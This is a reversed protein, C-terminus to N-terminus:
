VATRRRGSAAMLTLMALVLVVGAVQVAGLREDLLLTAAFISVVPEVNLMMAGYTPAIMRIAAFWTIFAVVYCLTAGIAALSGALTDPWALGGAVLVYAGGVVLMWANTWLTMALGDHSGM